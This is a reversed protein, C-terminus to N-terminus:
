INQGYYELNNQPFKGIYNKVLFQTYVEKRAKNIKEIFFNEWVYMKVVKLASLVEQLIQNRQDSNEAVKLRNKM